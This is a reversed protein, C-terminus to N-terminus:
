KLQWKTVMAMKKQDNQDCTKMKAVIKKIIKPLM